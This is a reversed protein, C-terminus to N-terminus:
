FYGAMEFAALDDELHLASAITTTFGATAAVSVMELVDTDSYGVAKLSEIDDEVTKYPETSVKRVFQVAAYEAPTTVEAGRGPDRLAIVEERDFGFEEVLFRSHGGACYSCGRAHASVVFLMEKLKRPLNGTTIIPHYLADLAALTPEFQSCMRRLLSPRALEREFRGIQEAAHASLAENDPYPILAM